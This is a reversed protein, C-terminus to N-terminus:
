SLNVTVTIHTSNSPIAISRRYLIAIIQTCTRIRGDSFISPGSHYLSRTHASKSLRVKKLFIHCTGYLLTVEGNVGETAPELGAM